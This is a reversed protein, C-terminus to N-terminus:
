SRAAALHAVFGYAPLRRPDDGANEAHVLEGEPWADLAVPADGFNAAVRLTRGGLAWAAQVAKPGLKRAGRPRAQDIWPQLQRRRTELLARFWAWWAAGEGNGADAIDAVSAAFTEPANPDPIAARRREDAFAAFRAFERRRGERVQADLPPGFDTFFLFPARCGWPEGMFFLPIMPTLATLALAARLAPEPVLCILREGGARNGIQDHNQAFVVFKSPPLMGSPEGRRRGDRDPEGQFAFGEGLVRALKGAPDDAYHAYYGEDEGTLLVHLANHFDDNWQATYGRALLSAQNRENELVLHVHRGAPTAVAIAERLEDLFGPPEIAHVADLRLGDFRYERLWMLANDVFFRRVQARRFDIAPGWPSARDDRFFGSAYRALHNGAPGFHNYVVDLLVMLGLGHAEDVLAKLEDPAGYASAPAYPLVGDYGWNRRGAFEAVPMLEIATVGLEALRPLQARVGHYGGCAGVHLEYLVAERWPRGHWRAHRWAYARPDHVASPGDVGDPQWRSAPDPVADAGDIRYRYRAGAGAAAAVVFAGDPERAMAIRRGGLELEVADADPAWLRFRVRGDDLPVAGLWAADTAAGAASM